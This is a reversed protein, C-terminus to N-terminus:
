CWYLFLIQLTKTIKSANLVYFSLSVEFSNLFNLDLFAYYIPVYNWKKAVQRIEKIHLKLSNISRVANILNLKLFINYSMVLHVILFSIVYTQKVHSCQM